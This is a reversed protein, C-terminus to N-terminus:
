SFCVSIGGCSFLIARASSFLVPFADVTMGTAVPIWVPDGSGRPHCLVYDGLVAEQKTDSKQM